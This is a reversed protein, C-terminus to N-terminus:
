PVLTGGTIENGAGGLNRITDTSNHAVVDCDDTFADLFIDVASPQKNYALFDNGALTASVPGIGSESGITIGNGANLPKRAIIKNDTIQCTNIRDVIIGQLPGSFAAGQSSRLFEITNRAIVVPEATPGLPDVSIAHTQEVVIGGSFPPFQPAGVFVKNDVASLNCPAGIWGPLRFEAGYQQGIAASLMGYCNVYDGQALSYRARSTTDIEQSYYGFFDAGCDLTDMAGVTEISAKLTGPLFNYPSGM